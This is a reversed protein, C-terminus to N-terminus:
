KEKERKDGNGSELDKQSLNPWVEGVLRLTLIEGIFAVLLGLLHSVLIVSGDFTENSSGHVDPADFGAFTGDPNVQVARWMPAEAGALTLARMFLARFGGKGMLAILQPRLKEIVIIGPPIKSEGSNKEGTEFVILRESFNRMKLNVPTM